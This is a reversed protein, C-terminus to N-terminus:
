QQEDGPLPAVEHGADDVLDGGAQGGRTGLGDPLVLLRFHGALDDSQFGPLRGLVTGSPADRRPVDGTRSPARWPSVFKSSARRDTRRLFTTGPAVREFRATQAPTQM